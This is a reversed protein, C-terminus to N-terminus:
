FSNGSPIRQHLETLTTMKGKMGKSKRSSSFVCMEVFLISYFSSTINPCVTLTENWVRFRRTLFWHSKRYFRNAGSLSKKKKKKRQEVPDANEKCLTCAFSQERGVNQHRQLFPICDCLGHKGHLAQGQQASSLFLSPVLMFIMMFYHCHSSRGRHASFEM